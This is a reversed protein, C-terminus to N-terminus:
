DNKSRPFQTRLLEVLAVLADANLLTVRYVPLKSALFSPSNYPYSVFVTPLSLYIPMKSVSCCGETHMELWDASTRHEKDFNRATDQFYPVTLSKDFTFCRFM